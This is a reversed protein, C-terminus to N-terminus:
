NQPGAKWNVVATLRMNTSQQPRANVLFRQGDKTVTYGTSFRPAGALFLARPTGLEFQDTPNIPVAILSGNSALYFLEKGDDRWIPQSGGETSVQHREGPGPFQQVFVNGLGTENTTFAIWRGNPSFVASAERFGAQAVPFPRRNGFTPLAWVDPEGSPGRRTFAIFRGDSSWSTTSLIDSSEFLADDVMSDISM